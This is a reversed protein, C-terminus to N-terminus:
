KNPQENRFIIKLKQEKIYNIYLFIMQLSSIQQNKGINLIMRPNGKLQASPNRNRLEAGSRLCGNIPLVDGLLCVIFVHVYFFIKAKLWLHTITIKSSNEEIVEFKTEVFCLGSLVSDTSGSLSVFTFTLPLEFLEVRTVLIEVVFFM